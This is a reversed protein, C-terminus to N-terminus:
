AADRRVPKEFVFQLGDTSPVSVGGLKRSLTVMNKNNQDTILFLEQGQVGCVLGIGEQLLAEGIGRQQWPKLVSIAIEKRNQEPHRRTGSIEALGIIRGGSLFAIFETTQWDISSYRRVLASLGLRGNFRLHRDEPELAAYHLIISAVCDSEIQVPGFFRDDSSSKGSLLGSVTKDLWSRARGLARSLRQILPHRLSVWNPRKLAVPNPPKYPRRNENTILM